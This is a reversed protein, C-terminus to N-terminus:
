CRTHEQLIPRRNRVAFAVFYDNGNNIQTAGTEIWVRYELVEDYSYGGGSKENKHYNGVQNPDVAVPYASSGVIQRDARVDILGSPATGHNCASLCVAGALGLLLRVGFPIAM